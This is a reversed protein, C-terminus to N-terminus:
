KHEDSDEHSYEDRSTMYEYRYEGMYEDTYEIDTQLSFPENELQTDDQFHAV